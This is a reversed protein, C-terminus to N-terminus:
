HKRKIKKPNHVHVPATNEHIMSKLTILNVVKSSEYTLTIGKVKCIYTRECTSPCIVSFAGCVFEDIYSDSGYKQLENTVDGLYDGIPIKPPEATKQVYVVSDTDCYLVSQGLRNLYDYLKLRTTDHRLCRCSRQCEERLHYQGRRVEL